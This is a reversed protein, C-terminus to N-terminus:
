TRKFGIDDVEFVTLYKFPNEKDLNDYNYETPYDMAAGWTGTYFYLGHGHLPSTMTAMHSPKFGLRYVEKRALARAITALCV